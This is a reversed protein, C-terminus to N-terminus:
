KAGIQDLVTEEVISKYRLYSFRRRQIIKDLRQESADDEDMATVPYFGCRFVTYIIAKLMRDYQRDFPCNIFVSENYGGRSEM